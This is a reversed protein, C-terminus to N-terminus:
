ELRSGVFHWQGNIWEIKYRGSGQFLLTGGTFGFPLGDIMALSQSTQSSVLYWGEYELGNMYDTLVPYHTGFLVFFCGPNEALSTGNASVAAFGGAMREINVELYAM